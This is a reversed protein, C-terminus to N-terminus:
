DLSYGQERFLRLCAAVVDPDYRSGSRSSVEELAKDLPLSNRYSHHVTLDEIADAVALIRSEIRITEGKIGRPFGSGDFCERHQLVIDAIPWPMELEKLADHGAQPYAQYMALKIGDLRSTDQLYEIPVDLLGIDYVAAALGIGQVQFDTMKMEGGIASTLAAVRRHHGPTYPGKREITDSLVKITGKLNRELQAHSEKLAAEAQKRDTIDSVVARYEQGGSTAQAEIRVQRTAAGTVDQRQTESAPPRDNGNRLTVECAANDESAAAWNSFVKQMFDNFAPLDAASVYQGFSRNLLRERVEGLLRAGALNMRLISWNFGLTFYGVPAFDYLDTYQALLEEAEARSQRLEENQMELEIQHIQLEQVLTRTDDVSEKPRRSQREEKLRDEARRRLGTPESSVNDNKKM